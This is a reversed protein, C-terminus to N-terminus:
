CAIPACLLPSSRVPHKCRSCLPMRDAMTRLSAARPLPKPPRRDFPADRGKSFLVINQFAGAQKIFRSDSCRCRDFAEDGVLRGINADEAFGAAPPDMRKGSGVAQLLPLGM